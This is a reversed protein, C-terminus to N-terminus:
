SPPAGQQNGASAARLIASAVHCRSHIWRARWCLWRYHWITPLRQDSFCSNRITEIAPYGARRHLSLVRYNYVDMAAVSVVEFGGAAAARQLGDLTHLVRHCPKWFCIDNAPTLDAPGAVTLPFQDMILLGGPRLRPQLARLFTSPDDLHEFLASGYILDFAGPTVGPPAVRGAQLPHQHQFNEIATRSLDEGWAEVRATLLRALLVGEGFGIELVRKGPQLLLAQIRQDQELFGRQEAARAQGDQREARQFVRRKREDIQARTGEQFCADFYAANEAEASAHSKLVFTGCVPCEVYSGPPSHQLATGCDPCAAMM